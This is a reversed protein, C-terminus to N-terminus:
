PIHLKTTSKRIRKLRLCAVALRLISVLTTFISESGDRCRKNTGIVTSETITPACPNSGRVRQKYPLHESGVSSYGWYKLSSRKSLEEKRSHLPLDFNINALFISPKKM